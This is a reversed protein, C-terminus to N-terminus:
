KESHTHTHIRKAYVYATSIRLFFDGVYVSFKLDFPSTGNKEEKVKIKMKLTLSKANKIILIEYITVSLACMAAAM